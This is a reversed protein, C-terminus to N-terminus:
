LWQYSTLNQQAQSKKSLLFDQVFSLCVRKHLHSWFCVSTHLQVIVKQFLGSPTPHVHKGRKLFAKIQYEMCTFLPFQQSEWEQSSNGKQNLHKLDGHQKQCHHDCHTHLLALTVRIARHCEGTAVQHWHMWGESGGGAARWDCEGRRTGGVSGTPENWTVHSAANRFWRM